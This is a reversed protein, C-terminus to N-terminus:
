IPGEPDGVMTCDDYTTLSLHSFLPLLCTDRIIPIYVLLGLFGSISVAAAPVAGYQRV